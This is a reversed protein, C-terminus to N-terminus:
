IEQGALAPAAKALGLQNNLAQNLATQAQTFR